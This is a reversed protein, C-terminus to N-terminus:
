ANKNLFSLVKNLTDFNESKVFFPRGRQSKKVTKGLWFFNLDERYSLFNYIPHGVICIGIANERNIKNERLNILYSEPYSERVNNLIIEQKRIKEKKASNKPPKNKLNYTKFFIFTHMKCCFGGGPRNSIFVRGCYQCKKIFNNHMKKFFIEKRKLLAEFMRKRRLISLFEGKKSFSKISRLENSNRCDPCIKQHLNIPLFSKKCKKCTRFFTQLEKKEEKKLQLSKHFAKSCYECCFRQTIAIPEFKESCYECEREKPLKKSKLIQSTKIRSCKESCYKSMPSFSSFEKGCYSCKQKYIKKM